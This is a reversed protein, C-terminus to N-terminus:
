IRQLISALVVLTVLRAPQKGTIVHAMPSHLTKQLFLNHKYAIDKIQQVSSAQGHLHVAWIAKTKDTIKEGIKDADINHFEDPEAFVPTEGNMTIGM